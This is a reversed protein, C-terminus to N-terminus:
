KLPTLTTLAHSPHSNGSAIVKSLSYNLCLTGNVRKFLMEVSLIVDRELLCTQLTFTLVQPKHRCGAFRWHILKRKEGFVYRKTLFEVVDNLEDKSFIPSFNEEEEEPRTKSVICRYTSVMKNNTHIPTFNPKYKYTQLFVSLTLRNNVGIGKIQSRQILIQLVQLVQIFQIKVRKESGNWEESRVESRMESVIFM